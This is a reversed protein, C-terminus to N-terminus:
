GVPSKQLLTGAMERDPACTRVAGGIDSASMFTTSTKTRRAASNRMLPLALAIRAHIAAKRESLKEAVEWLIANGDSLHRSGDFALVRAVEDSFYDQAPISRGDGATTGVRLRASNSVVYHGDHQRCDSWM